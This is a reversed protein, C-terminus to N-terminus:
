ILVEDLHIPCVTLYLSYHMCLDKFWEWNASLMNFGCFILCIVHGTGSSRGYFFGHDRGYCYDAFSCFIPIVIFIFTGVIAPLVFFLGIPLKKFVARNM